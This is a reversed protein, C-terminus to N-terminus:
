LLIHSLKLSVLGLHCGSGLLAREAIGAYLMDCSGVLCGKFNHARLETSLRAGRSRRVGGYPVQVGARTGGCSM